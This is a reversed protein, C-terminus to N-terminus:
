NLTSALLAAILVVWVGVGTGYGAWTRQRKSRNAQDQYGRLYDPDALLAPAPARFNREKVAAGSIVAPAIIGFVPGGYLTAGLTGWYPGHDTYHAWADRRGLGLRQGADLGPLVDAPGGAAVEPHLVEKTGNAYRVLFVEAVPLALTDPPAPAAPLYRLQTPTLVVVRGQIEQGDLRLITDPGPSAQAWARAPLLAGLVALLLLYRM